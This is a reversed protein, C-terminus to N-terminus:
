KWEFEEELWFVSRGIIEVIEYMIQSGSYFKDGRLSCSLICVFMYNNEWIREGLFM